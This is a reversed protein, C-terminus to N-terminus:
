IKLVLDVLSNMLRDRLNDFNVRPCCEIFKMKNMFCSSIVMYSYYPAKMNHFEDLIEDHSSPSKMANQMLSVSTSSM